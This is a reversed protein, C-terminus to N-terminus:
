VDLKMFEAANSLLEFDSHIHNTIDNIINSEYDAPSENNSDFEDVTLGLYEAVDIIDDLSNADELNDLIANYMDDLTTVEIDYDNFLDNDVIWKALEEIDIPCDTAMPHYSFSVLNGYGNFTFYEDNDNYGDHNTQRIADYPTSFLENLTCEDNDYIRDYSFANAMDNYTMVLDCFLLQELQEIVQSIQVQALTNTTVTNLTTM